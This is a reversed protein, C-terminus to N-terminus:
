FEEPLPEELAKWGGIKRVQRIFEEETAIIRGRMKMRSNYITQPSVGLIKAIKVSNNIGLRVLAYIRIDTNLKEENRVVIHEEPKLLTNLEELFNPFISLFISDFHNNFEKMENSMMSDNSATMKLLDDYQKAKLKRHISKRFNVIKELYDSCVAFLKGIYEEKLFSAEQLRENVEVLQKSSESLSDHAIQLEKQHESLLQLNVDLERNSQSLQKRLKLQKKFLMYVFVLLILLIFAMAAIGGIFANRKKAEEELHAVTSDYLRMIPVHITGGRVRDPYDNLMGMYAKMFRNAYVLEDIERAHSAVILLSPLNRNVRSIDACLGKVYYKLMNESDGTASSLIGTAFCLQAYWLDDAEMTDVRERIMRCVEPKKEADTENWFRGWLYYPSSQNTEITMLSDGYAHVEDLLPSNYYISRQSWYYLQQVYYELKIERSMPLQRAKDLVEYAEDLLGIASYVKAKALYCEVIRDTKDHQVALAYNKDIYLLASDYSFSYYNEYILKNYFYSAEVSQPQSAKKKLELLKNDLIRRYEDKRNLASDLRSLYERGETQSHPTHSCSCACLLCIITLLIMAKKM